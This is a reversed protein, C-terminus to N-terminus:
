LLWSKEMNIWIDEKLPHYNKNAACAHSYIFVRPILEVPKIM